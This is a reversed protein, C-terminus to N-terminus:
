VAERTFVLGSRAFWSGSEAQARLSATTAEAVRFGRRRMHEIWYAPPRCNVHHWGAQGPLAHTMALVRGQTLTALLSDLHDEAIHEVTECCWVLDPPEPLVLPGTTLDHEIFEGAYEDSLRLGDIGTVICGRMAFALMTQGDGCGVDLVSRLRYLTVLRDWVRPTCSRPDGYEISGGLHPRDHDIVYAM